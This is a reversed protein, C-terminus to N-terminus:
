RSLVWISYNLFAAFAVWGLYPLFLLGAIADRRFFIITTAAIALLLVAIEGLALDIRHLSFFIFSWAFNLALQIAYLAMAGSRWGNVRWVRWAAVAMLAYLATWVPAFIWNPPDFSPRAITTYWGSVNPETFISSLAGVALTVLLFAFLVLKNRRENDMPGLDLDTM